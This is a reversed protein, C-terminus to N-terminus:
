ALPPARLGRAPDRRFTIAAPDEEAAVEALLRLEAPRVPGANEPLAIASVIQCAPCPRHAVSGDGIDGCIDSLDGGALVFAEVRADEASPMRHGFGVAILALALITTVVFGLSRLGNTQMM